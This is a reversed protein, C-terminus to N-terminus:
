GALVSPSEHRNEHSPFERFIAEHLRPSVCHPPVALLVFYLQAKTPALSGRLLSEWDVKQYSGHYQSYCMVVIDRILASVPRTLETCAGLLEWLAALVDDVNGGPSHMINKLLEDLLHSSWRPDDGPLGFTELVRRAEQTALTEIENM